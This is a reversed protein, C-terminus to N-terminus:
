LTSCQGEIVRLGFLGDVNLDQFNNKYYVIMRDVAKIVRELYIPSSISTKSLLFLNLLFAWIVVAM